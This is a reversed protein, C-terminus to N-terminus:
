GIPLPTNHNKGGNPYPRSLTKLFLKPYGRIGLLKTKNLLFPFKKECM